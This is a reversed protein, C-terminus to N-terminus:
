FIGGDPSYKMEMWVPLALKLDHAEFQRMVQLNVENQVSHRNKWEFIHYYFTVGLAYDNFNRLYVKKYIVEKHKSLIEDILQLAAEVQKSSTQPSLKLDRYVWQGPHRTINTVKNNTFNSNPITIWHEYYYDQLSSSRLGIEKIIMRKGDFEILDGRKFLQQMFITIGGFINAVTDKGALAFALGGIGLGALIASVDYGANDLGILIGLTWVIMKIGTRIIGLLQEDLFTETKQGFPIIYAKHLSDYIRAVFWAILLAIIMKFAHDFLGEFSEPLNLRSISLHIGLIVIVGVFPEETMDVIIDDLKIGTKRVILRGWKKFIWYVIKGVIFSALILLLATLWELITNGYYTPGM